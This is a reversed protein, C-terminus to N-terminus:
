TSESAPATTMGYGFRSPFFEWGHIRLFDHLQNQNDNDNEQEEAATAIISITPSPLMPEHKRFDRYFCFVRHTYTFLALVGRAMIVYHSFLVMFM